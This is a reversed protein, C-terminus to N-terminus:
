HVLCKYICEIMSTWFPLRPEESFSPSFSNLTVIWISPAGFTSSLSSLADQMGNYFLMAKPLEDLQTVAFIFGKILVKGLEDNGSGMRDSSVVVVM